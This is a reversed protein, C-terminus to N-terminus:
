CNSWQVREHHCSASTTTKTSTTLRYFISTSIYLRPREFIKLSCKWKKDHSTRTYDATNFHYYFLRLSCHENRIEEDM